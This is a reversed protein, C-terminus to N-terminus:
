LPEYEAREFDAGRLLLRTLRLRRREAASVEVIRGPQYWTLPVVISVPAGGTTLSPLLFGQRFREKDAGAGVLRLAIATAPGPLLIVGAHLQADSSIKVWRMAGLFFDTEGAPRVAVIAGATVRAGAAGAPRMLRLGNASEDLRQWPEAGYGRQEAVEADSCTAFDGFMAIEHARQSSLTAADNPPRFVHGSVQYHVAEFGLAVECPTETRRRPEGRPVGGQCCHEYIHRLLLECEAATCGEGLNLAAPAEGRRLASLRKRISHAMGTLLLWRTAQAQGTKAAPRDSTSDIMLLSQTAEMPPAALIEVKPSWRRLWRLVLRLQRPTLDYPSAAHLLLALVYAAQVKADIGGRKQAAAFALHLRRWFGSTPEHLARYYDMLEGTMAALARRAALASDFGSQNAGAPGDHLCALYGDALTRWLLINADLAEREAENLPLPRASFRRASEAQAFSAPERLVELIALLESAPMAAGILAPLNGLIVAQLRVPNARPQRSLWQRCGAADKFALSVDQFTM